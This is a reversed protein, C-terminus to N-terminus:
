VRAPNTIHFMDPRGYELSVSGANPTKSGWSRLSNENECLQSFQVTHQHSSPPLLHIMFYMCLVFFHFQPQERQKTGMEGASARLVSPSQCCLFLDRVRLQHQGSFLVPEKRVSLPKFASTPSTPLIPLPPTPLCAELSVLSQQQSYCWCYCVLSSLHGASISSPCSQTVWHYHPM